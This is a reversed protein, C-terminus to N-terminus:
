GDSDCTEEGQHLCALCVCEEGSLYRFDLEPYERDNRGCRSCVHFPQNETERAQRQFARSRQKGQLDTVTEKGFFLLYPLIGALLVARVPAPGSLLQLGYFGWMVWGIYKVKVPLVFFLLFEVDPFLRAFALTLSGMIFVNTVPMWPFLWAVLVTALWGTGLYVGFRFEGWQRELASGILWTVYLGLAFWLPSDAMPTVMFTFARIWEMGGQRLGAGVLILQDLGVQGTTTALYVLAQGALLVPLLYPFTYRGFRQELRDLFSM